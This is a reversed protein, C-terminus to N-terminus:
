WRVHANFIAGTNDVNLFTIFAEKMKAVMEEQNFEVGEKLEEASFSGYDGAPVDHDPVLRTDWVIYYMDGDLDSGMAIQDTVPRDGTQPFVICDVLHHLDPIDVCEVVRIDGPHLAPCKGLAVKGSVITTNTSSKRLDLSTSYQFFVQGPQLKGTEDVVGIANRAQKIPIVSKKEILRLNSYAANGIMRSLFPDLMIEDVNILGKEVANHVTEYLLPNKEFVFRKDLPHKMSELLEQIAENQVSMLNDPSVGLHHLILVLQRELCGRQPSSVNLVEITDHLPARFKIMSPRIRLHINEPLEPNIAVVGKVGQYRIQFVSPVYPLNMIKSIREAADGSIQGCGDSFCYRGNSSILDPVTEVQDKTIHITPTSVSFCMGMRAGYKYASHINSFDGMWSRIVTPTIGDVPSFMWCKSYRMGADTCMLFEYHRGAITVGETIVKRKNKELQSAKEEKVRTNKVKFEIRLFHLSYEAFQRLVRNTEDLRIPYMVLSGDTDISIRPVPLYEMDIPPEPAEVLLDKKLQEWDPRQQTCANLFSICVQQKYKSDSSQALINCKEETFFKPSLKGSYLLFEAHYRVPFNIKCFAERPAVKNIHKLEISDM